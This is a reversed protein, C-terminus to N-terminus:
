KSLKQKRKKREPVDDGTQGIQDDNIQFIPKILTIRELIKTMEDVPIEKHVTKIHVRYNSKNCFESSCGPIECFFKQKKHVVLIHMRLKNYHYFTAPCFKCNFKKIGEHRNEHVKLFSKIRFKKGCYKCAHKKEVHNVIKHHRM